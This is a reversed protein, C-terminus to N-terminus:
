RGSMTMRMVAMTMCMIAMTVRMVAMTVRMGVIVVQSNSQPDQKANHRKKSHLFKHSVHLPSSM